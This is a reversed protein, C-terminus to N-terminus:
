IRITSVQREREFVAPDFEYLTVYTHRDTPKSHDTITIMVKWGRIAIGTLNSWAYSLLRTGSLGWEGWFLRREGSRRARAFCARLTPVPIILVLARDLSNSQVRMKLTIIHNRSSTYFPKRRPLSPGAPTNGQLEGEVLTMGCELPPLQLSCVYDKSPLMLPAGKMEPRHHDFVYIRLDSATAVLVHEQDIFTFSTM